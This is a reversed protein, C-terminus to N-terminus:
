KMEMAFVGCSYEDDDGNSDNSESRSLYKQTKQVADPKSRSAYTWSGYIHAPHVLLEDPIKNPSCGDPSSLPSVQAGASCTVFDEEERIRRWDNGDYAFEFENRIVNNYIDETSTWLRRRIRPSYSLRSPITAAKVIANFSVKRTPPQTTGGSSTMGDQSANDFTSPEHYISLLSFSSSLFHPTTSNLSTSPETLSDNSVDKTTVIKTSAFSTDSPLSFLESAFDTPETQLHLSRSATQENNADDKSLLSTWATSLEFKSPSYPSETIVNSTAIAFAVVDTPDLRNFKLDETYQASRRLLIVEEAATSTSPHSSSVSHSMISSSGLSQSLSSPLRKVCNFETQHSCSQVCQEEFSILGGIGSTYSQQSSIGLRHLYRQRVDDKAFRKHVSDNHTSRKFRRLTRRNISSISHTSTTSASVPAKKITADGDLMLQHHDSSSQLKSNAM